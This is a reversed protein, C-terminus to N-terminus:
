HIALESILEPRKTLLDLLVRASGSPHRQGQEWSKLTNVSIGIAKAFQSQSLGTKKRIEIPSQIKTTRAFQGKQLQNLSKILSDHVAVAEPDDDIIAQAMANIDATKLLNSM